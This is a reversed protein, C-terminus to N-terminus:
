GPKIEDLGATTLDVLGTAVAYALLEGRTRTGTRQRLEAFRDQVTRISLGLRTAIQKDSMGSAALRLVQCQRATLRVPM